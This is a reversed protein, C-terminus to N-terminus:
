GDGQKIKKLIENQEQKSFVRVLKFNDINAPYRTTNAVSEAFTNGNRQIYMFGKPARYMKLIKDKM